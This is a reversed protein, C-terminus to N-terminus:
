GCSFGFNFVESIIAIQNFELLHDDESVWPCDTLHPSFLSLLKCARRSQIRM